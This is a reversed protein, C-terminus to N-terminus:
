ELLFKRMEEYVLEEHKIFCHHHGQPIEIITAHPVNQRFQEINERKWPAARTEFHEMVQTKQEETMWDDSIAESGDSIAFFSLAPVKIKSDEPVYSTLMDMVAKNIADNMKEVIKGEPTKMIEHKCQEEMSETWIAAYYPYAIKMAAFYDEPSYYDVDLGPAQIHRLPSKEVMNKYSASSRDFAADLFILKLVREPYLASFHSLEVGAMSHGALIAKEIGLTNLFQRVDETLTDVDYDTEPHDSQGHGRRTLAMVHFKDSFRPALDDFNHANCGMGALFLLVDGEGGWDLYHLKIGNVSVFDSKHPSKDMDAEEKHFFMTSKPFLERRM